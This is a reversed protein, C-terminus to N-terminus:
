LEIIDKDIEVAKARLLALREKASPVVSIEKLKPRELKLKERSLQSLRGEIYQIRSRRKRLDTRALQLKAISEELAKASTLAEQGKGDVTLNQYAQILHNREDRLGSLEVECRAPFYTEAGELRIRCDAEERKLV